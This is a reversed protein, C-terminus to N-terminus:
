KDQVVQNAPKKKSIVEFGKVLHCAHMHLDIDLYHIFIYLMGVEGQNKLAFDSLFHIWTLAQIDGLYNNSHTHM